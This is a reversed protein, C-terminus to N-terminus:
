NKIFSNLPPFNSSLDVNNLQEDLAFGSEKVLKIGIILTELLSKENNKDFQSDIALQKSILEYQNVLYNKNLKYNLELAVHDIKKEKLCSIIKEFNM